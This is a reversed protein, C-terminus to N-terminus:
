VWSEHGHLITPATEPEHPNWLRVTRDHSTTALMSGDHNFAVGSVEGEHGHLITPAAEPEHPNWLRVTLDRSTTALMSGDHNFAVGNVWSEHGHLITPAAEPEHPNWLRVTRDHSTTALMSGDHNFAVGSVVGEHGHLITPAAEPEHPNWLRVTLDHSTTALMSGDHNFAVGSVEREHGHLTATLAPHPTDPAPRELMLSDTEEDVTAGWSAAVDSTLHSWRLVDIVSGSQAWRRALRTALSGNAARHSVLRLDGLVRRPGLITNLLGLWEASTVMREAEDQRGAEILHWIHRQWVYVDPQVIEDVSRPHPYTWWKGTEPRWGDLLRENRAVVTDSHAARLYGRMVDHLRVTPPAARLDFSRLLSLNFLTRCATRAAAAPLAWLGALVPLPISEDEPFIALDALCEQLRDSLARISRGFVAAATRERSEQNMLDAAAGVGLLGDFEEVADNIADLAAVGDVIDRVLRRNLVDLLLPWRGCHRFLAALSPELGAPLKRSLLAWAESHTMEDLSEVAAGDPLTSTQRTTVLRVCNPGGYDCWPRLDSRRWADDIVLLVRRDGLAEALLNGADELSRASAQADTLHSIQENIREALLDTSIEEGLTVWLTGDPFAADVDPDNTLMAALTTKGFGGAGALGVTATIGVVRDGNPAAAALLRQKFRDYVAAREIADAAVPERHRPIRREDPRSTRADNTIITVKSHSINALQINHSGNALQEVDSDM